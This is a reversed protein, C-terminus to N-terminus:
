SKPMKSAVSEFSRDSLKELEQEKEEELKPSPLIHV